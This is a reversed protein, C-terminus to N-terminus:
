QLERKVVQIMTGCLMRTPTSPDSAAASATRQATPNSRSPSMSYRRM